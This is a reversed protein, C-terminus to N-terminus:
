KGGPYRGDILLPVEGLTIPGGGQTLCLTAGPTAIGSLGSQMGAPLAAMNEGSIIRIAIARIRDCQRVRRAPRSAACSDRPPWRLWSSLPLVGQANRGEIYDILEQHQQATIGSVWM